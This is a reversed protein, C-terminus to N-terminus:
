NYEFNLKISPIFLFMNKIFYPFMYGRAFSSMTLIITPMIWDYYFRLLFKIFRLQLIQSHAKLIIYWVVLKISSVYRAMAFIKLNIVPHPSHESWNKHHRMLDPDGEGTM